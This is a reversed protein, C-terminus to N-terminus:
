FVELKEATLTTHNEDVKLRIQQGVTPLIGLNSEVNDIFIPPAFGQLKAMTNIIDLGANQRESLSLSTAYPRGDITAECCEKLGGNIQEDFLKFSVIQFHSNISDTLLKVKARIFQECLHLGSEFAEHETALSKQRAELEKIRRDCDDRLRKQAAINNAFTIQRQIETIKQDLDALATSNGSAVASLSRELESKQGALQIALSDSALDVTSTPVALIQSEIDALTTDKETLSASLQELEGKAKTVGAELREQKEKVALGNAKIAELKNAKDQNFRAEATAKIEAIRGEPLPQGCTMCETSGTFEFYKAELERYEARLTERDGWCKEILPAQDNIFRSRMDIQRKVEDVAGTATVKLATLRNLEGFAEQKLAQERQIIQTEVESIQRRIEASEGGSLVTQRSTQLTNLDLQLAALDRAEHEEIVPMQRKVEDLRTPISKKEEVLKRVQAEAIARYDDVSKDGLLEPLKALKEDSAFVDADTFNGFHDLLTERRKQWTMTGPFYDPDTLMRFVQEDCLERVKEIYQQEKAIPVGNIEYNTKYGTWVKDANGRDNEYKDVLIRKLTLEKGEIDFVAEVSTELGRVVQGDPAYKVDFTARNRSDKGFLVWFYADAITTKGCRNRARIQANDGGPAFDFSVIGRFYRLSLSKLKM